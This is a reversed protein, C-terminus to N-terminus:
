TSRVPRSISSTPILLMNEYSAALYEHYVALYEYYAILERPLCCTSTTPLLNEHSAVPARSTTPEYSQTSRHPLLHKITFVACHEDTEPACIFQIIPMDSM